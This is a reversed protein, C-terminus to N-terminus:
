DPLGPKSVWHPLPLPLGLLLGMNLSFPFFLIGKLRPMFLVIPCNCPGRVARLTAWIYCDAGPGVGRMHNGLGPLFTCSM